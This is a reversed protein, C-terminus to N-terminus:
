LWNTSTDVGATYPSHPANSDYRSGVVGSALADGFHCASCFKMLPLAQQHGFQAPVVAFVGSAGPLKVFCQAPPPRLEPGSLHLIRTALQKASQNSQFSNEIKQRAAKALRAALDPNHALELLKAALQHPNQPEVLLGDVLDDVLERVGGGGTVVVPLEMSMAEMIAVGLPEQLSALSFAHARELEEKVRAESVAGLLNVADTLDLQTILADLQARHGLALDDAGAIRLRADIGNRRILRIARILDDHGKCPNLRGCSFVNFPGTGSWPRYIGTRTFAQTDVGMPGIDVQLRRSEPIKEHLEHLLKETIVIGFAAHQWKMRQNPGYDELPGHLTLSYTVKGILHAFMAVHASDACSHVHLHHWTRRRAIWSLEAGAFALGILRLRRTVGNVDANKIAKIVRWPGLPASRLLEFIGSAIALLGVPALYRTRSMAEQSWTHSILRAPPRRTSVLDCSVDSRSLHQLERWFFIHTQGPFEPVLYGIRTM